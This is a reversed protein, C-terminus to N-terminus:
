RANRAGHQRRVGAIRFLMGLYLVALKLLSSRLPFTRVAYSSTVKQQRLANATVVNSLSNDTKLALHLIYM